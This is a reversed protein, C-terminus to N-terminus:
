CFVGKKSLGVSMVFSLAFQQKLCRATASSLTSPLVTSWVCRSDSNTQQCYQIFFQYSFMQEVLQEQCPAIYAGPILPTPSLNCSPWAQRELSESSFLWLIMQISFYIVNKNRNIYGLMQYMSQQGSTQLLQWLAALPLICLRALSDLHEGTDNESDDNNDQDDDNHEVWLKM